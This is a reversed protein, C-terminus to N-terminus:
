LRCEKGVRREESREPDGREGDARVFRQPVINYCRGCAPCPGTWRVPAWGDGVKYTGAPNVAGCGRCEISQRVQQKENM